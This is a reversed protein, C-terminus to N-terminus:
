ALNREGALPNELRAIAQDWGHRDQQREPQSPNPPLTMSGYRVLIRLHRPSLRGATYLRTVLRNIDGPERLM